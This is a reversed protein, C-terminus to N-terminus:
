NTLNRWTGEAFIGKVAKSVTEAAKKVSEPDRKGWGSVYAANARGVDPSMGNARLLAYSISDAEVEMQGREGGEGTHYARDGSTHGAAIHGLEHAITRATSGPSMGAQVVVRKSGDTTTYGYAGGSPDDSIELTFGTAKVAAALDDILGEPPEESLDMRNSPLDPGDTQAIDFVTASTFGVVRNEKRPKGVADLIPAGAADKLAVNVRRPALISIGREGKRVQRGLEVWKNYGAVQTADPRQMGILMQNNFSYKHFKAMTDLYHQWGEDNQLDAVQTELEGLFAKIKEEPSDYRRRFVSEEAPAALSDDSLVVEAESRAHPAFEGGIPQGKAQRTITATTM